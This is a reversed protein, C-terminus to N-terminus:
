KTNTCNSLAELLEQHGGTMLVLESRFVFGEFAGRFLDSLGLAPSGM